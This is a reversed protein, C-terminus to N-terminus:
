DAQDSLYTSFSVKKMQEIQIGQILNALFGPVPTLICMMAMGVFASYQLATLM